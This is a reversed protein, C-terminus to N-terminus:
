NHNTDDTSMGVSLQSAGGAPVKVPQSGLAKASAPVGGRKIVAVKLDKAAVLHRYAFAQMMDEAPVAPRVIQQGGVTARGEVVLSLPEAPPTPPVTLTVEAKDQNAPVRDGKLVYGKPADKLALTLDGSFGDKRLAYITVRATGGAAVNIVSPVIRLDFDPRPPSIRLRYAYEAGGQQQIDGLHLYYTGDAPATATLLSDAFHTHLGAGKDEHDDNFAMQRGQADTLKLVSDLPSDLRRANVEAVIQSGARATFRFIDWDGPPDIRGNVIVPLTVKQASKLENNPEKELSEPLTDVAFPMQNSVLNKARVSVPYVGPKKGKTDVTLTKTPLNWGKLEIKAQEGARCGLPFISTVFPLEGVAVRYVFDERGRYIADKIEIVYDGNQPVEYHLVPDPHFRYDDDYALEKGQADYLTVTAQFWGPVADALYPMLERAKVALVLQQGRRAAFRYRDVDAPLYPQTRRVLSRYREFSGPVIRGNIDAPLTVALNADAPGSKWDKERFEPLQGVCFVMPNSLGAAVQLRFEREGPEANAAITVRCTVTESLVPYATRNSSADFRKQIEAMEKFGAADTGKKQLERVRLRLDNSLQGALPAVHEIVTARVGNGSIYVNSAGDLYQGSIEMPFTDGQRGGAPYVYGIHPTRSQAWLNPVVVLVLVLPLVGYRRTRSM